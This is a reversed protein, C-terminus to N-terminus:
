RGHQSSHLDAGYEVEVEDYPSDILRWFERECEDETVIPKGKENLKAGPKNAFHQEKFANAVHQFAYLSRVEGDEFGYDNGSVKLCNMCFWDTTPIAAMPPNLCYLHYGRNCGDCLLMQEDNEGGGCIECLQNLLSHHPGSDM